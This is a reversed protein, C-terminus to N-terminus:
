YSSTKDNQLRVDILRAGSDAADEAVFNATLVYFNDLGSAIEEENLRFQPIRIRLSENAIGSATLILSRKQLAYYADRDTISDFFLKYNGSVKLHKSRIASVDSLGSRHIVELNNNVTLTFSTLPTTAAAAAATLGAGFQVFYDKFALVTGSTTTPSQASGNSPYQAQFAANLTALGEAIEFTLENVAAYTYQEVDTAGRSNILTATLPTNGSVTPYFTHNSPTGAAYLENGLALKWLYGANKVDANIKVSGEAWRKGLVSNSDQIRSAKSSMDEIPSHHGRMSNDVYPIFVAATTNAQGASTEIALGLSGLRGIQVNSDTAM